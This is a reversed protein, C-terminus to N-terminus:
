FNLKFKRMKNQNGREIKNIKFEFIFSLNVFSEYFYSCNKCCDGSGEYYDSTLNSLPIFEKSSDISRSASKFSVLITLSRTVFGYDKISFSAYNLVGFKKVM